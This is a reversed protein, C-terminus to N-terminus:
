ATTDDLERKEEVGLREERQEPQRGPELCLEGTVVNGLGVFALLEHVPSPIGRLRFGRGIGRAGIQLRALADIAVLDPEVSADMECLAVAADSQTLVTQLRACLGPLDSRGLPGRITFVTTTGTPAGM